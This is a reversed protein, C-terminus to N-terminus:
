WPASFWVFVTKGEMKAQKLAAEFPAVADPAPAQHSKLFAALKVPDIGAPDADPRLAAANTNAVVRGAADLVTLAPLADAKLTVGYGKALDVNRDLHGVNVNVVKYEDSFFAARQIESARRSAIFLKSGNDDNAGWTVLVRIDDTAAAHVATEIAAKADAKEDFPPPAPPRQIAQAPVTSVQAPPPPPSQQDAALGFLALVLPLVHLM